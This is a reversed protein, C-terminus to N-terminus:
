KNLIAHIFFNNKEINQWYFDVYAENKPQTSYHLLYTITIVQM